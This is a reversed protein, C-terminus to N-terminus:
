STELIKELTSYAKEVGHIDSFSIMLGNKIEKLRSDRPNDKAFSLVKGFMEGQFYEPRKEPFYGKMRDNKITLKQFGIKQAIWRLQLLKTLVRLEEPLPGFRDKLELLFKDLDEQKKLNDLRTYIRLRESINGVYTDPILVELDTELNCDKLLEASAMQGSFLEKFETEKLEQVAEDLIKHYADLGLDNIFGSQEGGLLNGAGRIDLDRMAVKYGDGIESFELLTQLRKRSVGSLGTLPPTLFFCFAKKNSRGVRGRMQHLDSLGFAQAQNIIITNANPIDLGSEIINTSVLIDYEGEIFGVMTKELLKGDMQGHAVAIRTDPVLRKVISAIEDIDKIRNHVFFVQGGRSLEFSIANRIVKENFVLVETHVAQRNPPPTTIVSFDKAGMLSFHLTRPIPTATLTLVDVNVRFKKLKEKTSVGFKQEEDIILLGLDKFKIDKGVLRHTGIVLDTKGSELNELIRKVQKPSRFRNLYEVEVPFDKLRESFTKNHQLALITTPVLVAVQKSDAIAKFAARIAVETKGFGVDGCVLRDMPFPNEMDRKVELTAHAQDPTDEYIFSSELEAQLYSDQSFQFGPSGKRKAYLEILDKAIDKVKKKTRKKKSEWEQSGLKSIAPAAGDKGAYKSIKHLAHIGVLLIDDDKYILRISEQTKGNVEKKELGVFKGVGFDIHTVFDGTQLDRLQNLSLARARSFRTKGKIRYFREFLQHETYCLLKLHEDIFGEKLGLLVPNIKLEPDLEHFIGQLREISSLQDTAIFLEFGKAQKEQLDEKILDFNKNFTPQSGTSYSISNAKAAKLGYGFLVRSFSSLEKHLAKGDLFLEIPPLVIPSERESNKFEGYHEEAKKFASDASEILLAQDRIWIQTNKNLFEFVSTREELFQGSRINPIINIVELEKQSLQDGPDFERISEVTDGYMEIRYPRENSFSFVDMIGGRQSYQGAEYVFDCQEFEYEAFFENLFGANLNNGKRIEFLNAQLSKKSIVKEPLAEPSTVILRTRNLKTRLSSLVEARSVVNANDTEESEYTKKFSPPFFLVEIDESALHVVDDYFYGAEERDNLIVFQDVKNHLASACVFISPLSGSLVKIQTLDNVAMGELHSVVVPNNLYNNLIIEGKV